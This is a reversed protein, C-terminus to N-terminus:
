IYGKDLPRREKNLKNVSLEMSKLSATGNGLNLQRM